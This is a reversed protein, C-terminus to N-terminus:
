KDNEVTSKSTHIATIICYLIDLGILYNAIANLYLCSIVFDYLVVFLCTFSYLDRTIALPRTAFCNANEFCMWQKQLWEAALPFVSTLTASWGM